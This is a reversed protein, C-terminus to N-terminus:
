LSIKNYSYETSLIHIEITEFDSERDDCLFFKEIHRAKRVPKYVRGTQDVIRKQPHLPIAEHITTSGQKTHNQFVMM